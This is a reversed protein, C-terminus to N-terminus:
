RYRVDIILYVTGPIGQFEKLTWIHGEKTDLFFVETLFAGEKEVMPFAQYRGVEQAEVTSVALLCLVLIGLTAITKQRMKM